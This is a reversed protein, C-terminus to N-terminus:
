LDEYHKAVFDAAHLPDMLYPMLSTVGQPFFNFDVKRGVATYWEPPIVNKGLNFSRRHGYPLLAFGEKTTAFYFLHNDFAGAVHLPYSDNTLLGWAQSLAIMSGRITLKDVMSPIGTIPLMGSTALNDGYVRIESNGIMCVPYPYAELFTKWWEGPITRTEWTNGPHILLTYRLDLGIEKFAAQMAEVEPKSPPLLKVRRYATPTMYGLLHYAAYDVGHMMPQNLGHVPRKEHEFSCLISYGELEDLHDRTYDNLQVTVQPSKLHEFPEVMETSIVIHLAKHFVKEILYRVAPESNVVDGRGGRVYILLNKAPLNGGSSSSTLGPYSTDTFENSM